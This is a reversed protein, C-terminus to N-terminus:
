SIKLHVSNTQKTDMPPLNVSITRQDNSPVSINQSNSLQSLLKEYTVVDKNKRLSRGLNVAETFCARYFECEPVQLIRRNLAEQYCHNINAYYSFAKTQYHEKYVADTDRQIVSLWLTSAEQYAKAAELYNLNKLYSDACDKVRTLQNKIASVRNVSEKMEQNDESFRLADVNADYMILLELIDTKCRDLCIQAVSSSRNKFSILSNPNAGHELLALVCEHKKGLIAIYLPTYGSYISETDIGLKLLRKVEIVNGNQAALHLPYHAIINFFSSVFKRM